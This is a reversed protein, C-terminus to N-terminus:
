FQIIQYTYTGAFTPRPTASIQFGGSDIFDIFWLPTSQNLLSVRDYGATYIVVTSANSVYYSTQIKPIVSTNDIMRIMGSTNPSVTLLPVYVGVVPLAISGSALLSNIPTLKFDNAGNYFHLQSQGLSDGISYLIASNSDLGTPATPLNIMSVKKHSGQTPATTDLFNHDSNIIAKLRSFNTNNQAPFIGPSQNANPVIISFTM